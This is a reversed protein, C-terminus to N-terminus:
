LFYFLVGCFGCGGVGVCGLGGLCWLLNLQCFSVKLLAASQFSCGVKKQMSFTICALPKVPSSFPIMSFFYM